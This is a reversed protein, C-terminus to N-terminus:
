YQAQLSEIEALLYHDTPLLLRYREHTTKLHDAAQEIEGAALLAQGLIQLSRARALESDLLASHEMAKTAWALGAEWDGLNLNQRALEEYYDGKLTKINSNADLYKLGRKLQAVALRAFGNDGIVRAWIIETSVTILNSEGLEMALNSLETM